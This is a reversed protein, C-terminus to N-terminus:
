ASTWGGDIKIVQGNIYKSNDSLLFTVLDTVDNLEGWKNSPTRSLTWKYLRKKNKKFKEYFSSKIFGPAISNVRIKNKALEIALSKTLGNIASKSSAYGSLEDFGLEGVISSLNIISGYNKKYRFQKVFKQTIYFLSFFNNQFVFDLDKKNIKLFKKRQRIGANNILCDLNHKNKKVLDFVRTVCKKDTIDGKIIYLNKNHKIKNIDSKSKIIAYIILNYSLLKELINKGIGKGAGTLLITRNNLDLM